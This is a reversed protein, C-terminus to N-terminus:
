PVPEKTLTIPELMKVGGAPVFVMVTKPQYGEKVLTLKQSGVPVNTVLKDTTGSDTGNILIIAGSPISAVYLSGTAEPPVEVSKTLTVSALMKVGNAPVTVAKSYSQYGAKILTLNQIGAPVNAVLGNTTGSDTGNILITAGSPISAVYLSGTAEPPVEGSKTLTIPELMKVGEAPVTVVTSYSQYGAKTLTLNQSGSLVETVLKNTMGYDTGNILITAGSPVSAVYLSGGSGPSERMRFWIARDHIIDDYDAGSATAPNLYARYGIIIPDDLGLCYSPSECPHEPNATPVVVYYKDTKDQPPQRLVKVAYLYPAM